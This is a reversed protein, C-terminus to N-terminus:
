LSARTFRASVVATRAVACRRTGRCAGGWGAFRWGRAAVARLRVAHPVFTAHCRGPCLVGAPTSTVRGRGRVSVTLRLPARVFTATAATRAGVSLTCAAASGSCSGSWSSFRWGRAPIAAVTVAEGDDLQLADCGSECPLETAGASAALTGEGDVALSFPQQPLNTLWGSNRIDWWTGTHGYYDDRGADLVLADLTKGPALFPYMVDNTDDCVHSGSTDCQHPAEAPVAGLNHLLEHAAVEATAGDGVPTLDCGSQLYVYAIGYDGGADNSLYDTEGCVDGDFTRGDYYVITKQGPPFRGVLDRDLRLATGSPSVYSSAPGPLRVFGIDLAGFETTCGGFPYRDFRPTRTPDQARWWGDIWAADTAIGSAVAAFEDVGDAPIAYVLRVQNASAIDLDPVRNGTVEDNGCWTVPAPAAAAAAPFALALLLLLLVRKV